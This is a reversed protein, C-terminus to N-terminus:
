FESPEEEYEEAEGEGIEEMSEEEMNGTVEEDLDEMSADLDQASENEGEDEVVSPAGGSGESDESDEEADNKEEQQTLSRGIPVLFGYGRNHISTTIDELENEEDSLDDMERQLDRVANLHAYVRKRPLPLPHPPNQKPLLLPCHPPQRLLTATVVPMPVGRTRPANSPQTPPHWDLHSQIPSLANSIQLGAQCLFFCRDFATSDILSSVLVRNYLVIVSFDRFAETEEDVFYEELEVLVNPDVWGVMFVNDGSIDADEGVTRVVTIDPIVLPELEGVHRTPGLKTQVEVVPIRRLSFVRLDPYPLSSIHSSFTSTDMCPPSNRISLVQLRPSIVHQLVAIALPGHCRLDLIRLASLEFSPLDDLVGDIYGGIVRLTIWDASVCDQLVRFMDPFNRASSAMELRTIGDLRFHDQLSQASITSELHIKLRRLAPPASLQRFAAIVDPQPGNWDVYWVSMRELLTASSLPSTDSLSFWPNMLGTSNFQVDLSKWRHVTTWLYELIKLTLRHIGGGKMALSLDLTLHLPMGASRTLWLSLSKISSFTSDRRDLM